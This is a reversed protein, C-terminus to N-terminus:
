RKSIESLIVERIKEAKNSYDGHDTAFRAVETELKTVGAAMTMTARATMKVRATVATTATLEIM